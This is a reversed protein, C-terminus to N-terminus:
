YNNQSERPKDLLQVTYAIITIEKDKMSLRGNVSIRTDKKIYDAIKDGAKRWLCVNFVGTEKRYEKKDDDFTHTSHTNSLKFTLKSQGKEKVLKPTGNIRGVMFISNLDM